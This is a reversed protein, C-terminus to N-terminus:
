IFFYFLKKIKIIIGTYSQKLYKLIFDDIIDVLNDAYKEIIRKVM